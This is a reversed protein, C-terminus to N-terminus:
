PNTEERIKEELELFVAERVAYEQWYGALKRACNLMGVFAASMGSAMVPSTDGNAAMVLSGVFLVLSSLFLPTEVHRFPSQLMHSMAAYATAHGRVRHLYKELEAGHFRAVARLYFKRCAERSSNAMRDGYYHEIEIDITYTDM